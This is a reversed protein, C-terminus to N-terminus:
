VPSSGGRPSISWLPVQLRISKIEESKDDEETYNCKDDEKEDIEFCPSVKRKQNWVYFFILLSWVTCIFSFSRYLLRGGFAKYFIGGFIIGLGGALGFNIGNLIGLLTTSAGQPALTTAHSVAAVWFLAFSNGHLLQLLLIYWAHKLYSMIFFRVAFSLTSIGMAAINGGLKKICRQSIIYFVTNLMSATTYSAGMLIPSGRLDKIFWFLYGFLLSNAVGLVFVTTFFFIVGPQKIIPLVSKNTNQKPTDKRNSHKVTKGDTRKLCLVAILLCINSGLYIFFMTLYNPRKRGSLKVGLGSVFTALSFGIGAWVRQKGFDVNNGEAGSKVMEIILIDLMLQIGGEFIAAANFIILMLIFLLSTAQKKRQNSRVTKFTKIYKHGKLDEGAKNVTAYIEHIIKGIQTNHTGNSDSDRKGLNLQSSTVNKLEGCDGKGNLSRQLIKPIWPSAFAFLTACIIQTILIYRHHHKKHAMMGWLPSSILQILWRSGNIIGTQKANFGTQRLFVPAFPAITGVSFFYFFCAVKLPLLTKNIKPLNM